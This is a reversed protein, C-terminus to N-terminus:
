VICVIGDEVVICLRIVEGMYCFQYIYLKKEKVLSHIPLVEMLLTGGLYLLWEEFLVFNVVGIM